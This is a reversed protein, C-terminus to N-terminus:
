NGLRNPVLGHLWGRFCARQVKGQWPQHLGSISPFPVLQVSKNDRTGQTSALFSLVGGDGQLGLSCYYVSSFISYCSCIALSNHGGCLSLSLCLSTVAELTM